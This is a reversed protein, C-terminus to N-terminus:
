KSRRGAYEFLATGPPQQVRLPIQVESCLPHHATQRRCGHTRFACNARARRGSFVTRIRGTRAIHLSPPSLPSSSSLSSPALFPSPLLFSPLLALTPLYLSATKCCCCVNLYSHWVVYNLMFRSTEIFLEYM